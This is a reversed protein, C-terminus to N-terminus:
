ILTEYKNLNQVLHINKMLNLALYSTYYYQGSLFDTVKREFVMYFTQDDCHELLGFKLYFLIVPVQPSLRKERGIILLKLSNNCGCKLDYLTSIECVPWKISGYLNWFIMKTSFHGNSKKKFCDLIESISGYDPRV